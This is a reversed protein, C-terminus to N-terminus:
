VEYRDRAMEREAEREYRDALQRLAGAFRSYANDDLANAKSRYEEALRREDVGASYSYIGRSNFLGTVFGSRMPENGKGNLANAVARHIWLGDPDAPAYIMVHGLQDQAINWHGTDVAIREVQCLWDVFHQQDFSGDHKSGPCVRWADLLGYASKALNALHESPPEELGDDKASRFVMAIVQCFFVPDDALRREITVPSAGSFRDLWPLFGWEILFLPDRDAATTRQLKGITEVVADPKLRSAAVPDALVARLAEVALEHEFTTEDEITVRLCEITADARGHALLKRMAVKLETPAVYPNVQVTSWYKSEHDAGLHEFVRTWTAAQFPLLKLFAAKQTATWAPSLSRDVWPWGLHRVRGWVFGELLRREVDDDTELLEPLLQKDTEEVSARGLAVGVEGPHAIDRAFARIKALGGENLLELIAACRAQEVRKGQEEYNGKEEFLERDHKNFLRRHRAELSKPALASAAQELKVLSAEPLAWKADAFKRHRHVIDIAKDSLRIRDVEPMATVESSSLHGNLWERGQESLDAWREILQELRARNGVASRVALGEYVEVQEWYAQRTVVDRWDRPVYQRWLPQRSGTTMGHSHPLLALLLKWGVEPQENLVGKVAAARRELSASTQFHWPVLIEILSRSPRNAYRGGPDISALDALILCVRSLFEENWALTELAWLLGSVYTGGTPAVGEQAFVARFPSAPSRALAAEVEDLFANPAAEALLPLLSNLGAWREWSGNTLIARVTREAVGEPNGLSCASLARPRSGLLALTEALGARLNKSHALQKGHMVAAYREAEPLDFRPDRESLVRVAVESFRELDADLLRNGLANWAEGRVLVRWKENQHTLPTDSRLVDGSLTEIWEGYGKGLLAEIAQLDNLNKGDWKGVLGAEALRRANDWTAYAPLAGLGRLERLMASIRDGGSSALEKARVPPFGSELLVQEVQSQSPNRLRLFEPAADSWAGCLPVVVSHGKMTCLSILSAGEDTELGLKWDVVFVHSRRAQVLSRLADEEKVFLCRDSFGRKREDKLTEIFGAVFDFHDYKGDIFMLLKNTRGEFLACLADCADERNAVFLKAPLEPQGARSIARWHSAPSDLGGLTKTIGIKKAMWFGVAPVERLWNALKIGDIIRIEKWGDNARETVWEQQKPQSWGGESATRSTVFVFTLSALDARQHKQTRKTYDKTAKKQPDKNTGIEWYSKGLPVFEAFGSVCEVLGDLGPDNVSDGYPIRSESAEPVSQRVLQYVLEPVVGRSDLRDSYQHLDEATVIHTHDM